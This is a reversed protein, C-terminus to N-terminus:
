QLCASADAPRCQTAERRRRQGRERFWLIVRVNVLPDLEWAFMIDRLNIDLIFTIADPM